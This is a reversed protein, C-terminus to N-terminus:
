HETQATVSATLMIQKHSPSTPLLHDQTAHANLLQYNSVMGYLGHKLPVQSTM